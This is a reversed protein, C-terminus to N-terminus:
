IKAVLGILYVSDFDIFNNLSPEQINNITYKVGNVILKGEEELGLINDIAFVADVNTMWTKQYFAPVESTQYFVGLVSDKLAEIEVWNGNGDPVQTITYPTADAMMDSFYDLINSM